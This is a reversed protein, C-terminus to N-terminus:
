KQEVPEAQQSRLEHLEALFGQFCAEARRIEAQWTAAPGLYYLRTRDAGISDSVTPSASRNDPGALCATWIPM